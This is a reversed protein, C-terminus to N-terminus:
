LDIALPLLYLPPHCRPLLPIRITRDRQLPHISYNYWWLWPFSLVSQGDRPLRACSPPSLMLKIPWWDYVSLHLGINFKGWEFLFPDFYKILLPCVEVTIISTVMFMALLPNWRRKPVDRRERWSYRLPGNNQGSPWFMTNCIGKSPSSSYIQCVM